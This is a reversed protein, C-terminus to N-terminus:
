ICSKEIPVEPWICCHRSISCKKSINLYRVVNSFRIEDTVDVVVCNREFIARVLELASNEGVVQLRNVGVLVILVSKGEAGM